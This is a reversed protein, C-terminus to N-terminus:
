EIWDPNPCPGPHARCRGTTWPAPRATHRPRAEVCPPSCTGPWRPCGTPRPWWIGRGPQAGVPEPPMRRACRGRPKPYACTYLENGARRGCPDPPPVSQPPCWLAGEAAPCVSLAIAPPLHATRPAGQGGASRTLACAM